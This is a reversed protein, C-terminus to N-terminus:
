AEKPGSAEGWFCGGGVWGDRGTASPLFFFSFFSFPAGAPMCSPRPVCSNRLKRSDAAAPLTPLAAPSRSALHTHQPPGKPPTFTHPHTPTPPGGERASVLRRQSIPTLDCHIPFCQPGASQIPSAHPVCSTHALLNICTSHQAASRQPAASSCRSMVWSLGAHIQSRARGGRRMARASYRGM